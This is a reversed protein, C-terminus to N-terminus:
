WLRHAYDEKALLKCMKIVEIERMTKFAVVIRECNPIQIVEHKLSWLWNPGEITEVVNLKNGRISQM